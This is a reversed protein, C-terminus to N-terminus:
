HDAASVRQLITEVDKLLGHAMPYNMGVSTAAYVRAQRLHAISSTFHQANAEAIGWEFQNNARAFYTDAMNPEIALARAYADEAHAFRERENNLVGLQHWISSREQRGEPTTVPLSTLLAEQYSAEAQRDWEAAEATRSVALAKTGLGKLINGRVLLTNVLLDPHEDKFQRALELARNSRALAEEFLEFNLYAISWNHWYAKENLLSHPVFEPATYVPQGATGAGAQLATLVEDANPRDRPERALCRQYIAEISAPVDPAVERLPRPRPNLHAAQWQAQTHPQNLDLLAHRGALIESLMIGLAYIDAPTSAYRADDWQEPAMYPITGLAMGRATHLGTSRTAEESGLLIAEEAQYGTHGATQGQGATSMQSGQAFRGSQALLLALATPSEEVAKALGFDTIVARGDSMLLVNEPKLDRHVTPENRLYKPDPRHLYALGATIQQVLNVALDLPLHRSPERKAAALLLNRLSGHEAYALALFPRLGVADAMKTLATAEAVNPHGWLGMWLLCERVFTAYIQPDDLLQRRLTKYATINGRRMHNPGFAIVGFGGYEVREIVTDYDTGDYLRMGVYITPDEPINPM